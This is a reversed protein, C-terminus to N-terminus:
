DQRPFSNFYLLNSKNFVVFLSLCLLIIKKLLLFVHFLYAYLIFLIRYICFIFCVYM